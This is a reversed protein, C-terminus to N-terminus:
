SAAAGGVANEGVARHRRPLHQVCPEVGTQDAHSRVGVDHEAAQSRHAAEPDPDRLGRRDVVQVPGAPLGDARDLRAVAPSCAGGPRAAGRGYGRSM